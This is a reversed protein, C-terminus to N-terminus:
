ILTSTLFLVAFDVTNPHAGKDLLFALMKEDNRIAALILPTQGDTPENLNILNYIGKECLKNIREYDSTRVCNLLKRM